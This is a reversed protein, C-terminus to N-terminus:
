WGHRRRSKLLRAPRQSGVRRRRGGRHRCSRSSAALHYIPFWALEHDECAIILWFSIGESDHILLLKQFSQLRHPRRELRGVSAQGICLQELRADHTIPRHFLNKRVHGCPLLLRQLIQREDDVSLFRWSIDLVTAEISEIRLHCFLFAAKLEGLDQALQIFRVASEDAIKLAHRFLLEYSLRVESMAEPEIGVAM